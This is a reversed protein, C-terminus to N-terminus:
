ANPSISGSIRAGIWRNIAGGVAFAGAGILTPAVPEGRLSQVIALAALLVAVIVGLAGLATLCAGLLTRSFTM